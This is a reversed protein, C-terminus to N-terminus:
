LKQVPVTKFKNEFNEPKTVWKRINSKHYHLARIDWPINICKYGIESFLYAIHHDCAHTGFYFDSNKPIRIPTKCIWADQSLGKKTWYELNNINNADRRGLCIVTDDLNIKNINILTKDFAIDNNCVIVITGNPLTNALKFTDYFTSRKNTPLNIIKGLNSEDIFMNEKNENCLLIKSIYPCKVNKKIANCIENYRTKNKNIYHETIVVCNPNHGIKNVTKDSIVKSIKNNFPEQNNIYCVIIFIIISLIFLCSFLLAYNM